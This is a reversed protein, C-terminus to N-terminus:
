EIGLLQKLFDLPQLFNFNLRGSPQILTPYVNPESRGFGNNRESKAIEMPVLEFSLQVKGQSQLQGFEDKEKHNFVDFWFKDTTRMNKEIIKKVAAIPQKRKVAKQIIKHM